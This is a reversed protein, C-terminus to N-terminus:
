WIGLITWNESIGSTFLEIKEVALRLHAIRNSERELEKM